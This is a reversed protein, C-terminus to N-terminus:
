ESPSVMDSEVSLRRLENMALQKRDWPVFLHDHRIASFVNVAIGVHALRISIAALFGIAELSSHVRLTIRAWATTSPQGLSDARDRDIVATVGEDERFVCIAADLVNPDIPPEIEVFVYPREDLWPEMLALLRRLNTEGTPSM